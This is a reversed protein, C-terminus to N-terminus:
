AVKKYSQQKGKRTAGQFMTNWLALFALLNSVDMDNQSSLDLGRKTQIRKRSQLSSAKRQSKAGVLSAVQCRFTSQNSSL